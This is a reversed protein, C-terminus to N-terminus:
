GSKYPLEQLTWANGDSDKFYVFGGWPQKDIDSIDVGKEKLDERVARVDDVVMM